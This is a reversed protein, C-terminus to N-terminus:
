RATAWFPKQPGFSVEWSGNKRILTAREHPHKKIQSLAEVLTTPAASITGGFIYQNRLAEDLTDHEWVDSRTTLIYKM